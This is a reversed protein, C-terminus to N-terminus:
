TPSMGEAETEFFFGEVCQKPRLLGGLTAAGQMMGIDDLAIHLVQQRLQDPM